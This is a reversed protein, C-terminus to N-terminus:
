AVGLKGAAYQTAGAVTLLQPYDPEPIDISLREHLAIIFNLYDMSDIDLAERLDANPDIGGADTEPAIDGLCDIVAQRIQDKTM